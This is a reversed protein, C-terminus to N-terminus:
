YKRHKKKNAMKTNDTDSVAFHIIIQKIQRDLDLKRM